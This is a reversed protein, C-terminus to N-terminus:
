TPAHLHLHGRAHSPVRPQTPRPLPKRTHLTRRPRPQSRFGAFNRRAMGHAENRASRPPPTVRSPVQAIHMGCLVSGPRRYGGACCSAYDHEQKAPVKVRRVHRTPPRPTQFSEASALLPLAHQRGSRAGWPMSTTRACSTTPPRATGAQQMTPTGHCLRNTSSARGLLPALSTDAPVPPQRQASPQPPLSHAVSAM